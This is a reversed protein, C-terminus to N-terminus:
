LAGEAQNFIGPVAFVMNVFEEVTPLEVAVLPLMWANPTDQGNANREVTHAADVLVSMMLFHTWDSHVVYGAPCDELVRDFVGTTYPQIMDQAWLATYMAILNRSLNRDQDSYVEYVIRSLQDSWITREVGSRGTVVPQLRYTSMSVSREVHIYRDTEYYQDNLSMHLDSYAAMHTEYNKATGPNHGYDLIMGLLLKAVLKEKQLEFDNGYILNGITPEPVSRARLLGDELVASLLSGERMGADTQETILFHTGDDVSGNPHYRIRILSQARYLIVGIAAVAGWVDDENGQAGRQIMAVLDATLMHQCNDFLYSYPSAKEPVHSLTSM